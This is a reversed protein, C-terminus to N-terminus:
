FPSKTLCKKYENFFKSRTNYFVYLVNPHLSNNSAFFFKCFMSIDEFACPHLHMLLLQGNWHISPFVHIQGDCHHPLQLLPHILFGHNKYDCFILAYKLDNFFLFFYYFCQNYLQNLFSKSYKIKMLYMAFQTM